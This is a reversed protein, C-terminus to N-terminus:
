ELFGLGSLTPLVIQVHACLLYKSYVQFASKNLMRENNAASSCEKDILM